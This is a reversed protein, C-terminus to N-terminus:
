KRNISNNALKFTVKKNSKEANDGENLKQKKTKNKELKKINKRKKPNIKNNANVIEDESVDINNDEVSGVFEEEFGNEMEEELIKNKFVTNKKKKKSNLKNNKDDFSLFNIKDKEEYKILIPSDNIIRIKPIVKIEEKLDEDNEINEEKIKDGNEGEKNNELNRDNQWESMLSQARKSHKLVSDVIRKKLSKSINLNTYNTKLTIQNVPDVEDIYLQDELPFNDVEEEQNIILYKLHKHFKFLM